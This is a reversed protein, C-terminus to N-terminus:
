QILQKFNNEKLQQYFTKDNIGDYLYSMFVQNTSRTRKSNEVKHSTLDNAIVCASCLLGSRDKQKGCQKCNKVKDYRNKQSCSVSCFNNVANNNCKSYKCKAM